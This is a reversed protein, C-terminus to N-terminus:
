PSRGLASCHHSTTSSASWGYTAALPPGAQPGLAARPRSPRAQGSGPESTACSTACTNPTRGAIAAAESLRDDLHDCFAAVTSLDGALGRVAFPEALEALREGYLRPLWPMLETLLAVPDPPPAMSWGDATTLIQEWRAASEAFAPFDAAIDRGRTGIRAAWGPDALVQALRAALEPRDKPDEVLVVNEGDALRDRYTQKAAIERSLVLCTGASLVEETGRTRPHHRPFGAGPLM